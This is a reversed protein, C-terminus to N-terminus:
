NWYEKVLYDYLEEPTSMDINGNEDTICGPKYDKGYNLEYIFYTINEFDDRMLKQLLYVVLSEHSIQLGAGNCFDCEVSDRSKRFLDNVKNVLEDSERLRDIVQVFEKRALPACQKKGTVELIKKVSDFHVIMMRNTQLIWDGDKAYVVKCGESKNIIYLYDTHNGETNIGEKPQYPESVILNNDLEEAYGFHKKDFKRVFRKYEYLDSFGGNQFHEVIERGYGKDEDPYMDGNFETTTYVKRDKGIFIIKGRTM